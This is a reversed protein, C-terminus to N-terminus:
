DDYQRGRGHGISGTIRTLTVMALDAPDHRWPDGVETPATPSVDIQKADDANATTSNAM